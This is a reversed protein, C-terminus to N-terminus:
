ASDNKFYLTGDEDAIPSCIAYQAQAGAPTFLCYAAECTKASGGANYSETTTLLAKTQGPKDALVRLKGPTYNDFFYVYVCGDTEKYATTLLGSTQPYGQTPVSYVIQKKNLDIVAIRHGSYAGFQSSGCVGVYARGHYVTPTGTCMAPNNGNKGDDLSIQDVTRIRGTEDVDAILFFGNKTTLCFRGSDADRMVASRIDGCGDPKSMDLLVGTKPDFTLIEGQGTTCGPEGDDTGVILFEDCVYAGAWYFGGKHTYTWAALKEEKPTDPAEDCVPLCVFNAEATEGQWFGTYIYGDHYAIPCNPQGGIADRYIWLSALTAADFAQICGDSLGVFLMGAAYTPANVAFSSSHDMTGTCVIEGTEKDVKYVTNGAYTYLYGDALIPCGCADSSFGDGIKTAWKLVADEAKVPTKVDLAANNDADYRSAPWFSELERPQRSADAQELAVTLEADEQPAVYGATWTGVYGNKTVTYSYRQGVNLLFVHDRGEVRKGTTENVVFVTADEPVTVFRVAAPSVRRFTLRYSGRAGSPHRLGITVDQVSLAPDLSIVVDKLATYAAGGIVAEYHGCCATEDGESVFTGNLTVSTVDPAVNVTYATVDRDFATPQGKADALSLPEDGAFLELERLHLEREITFVYDQYLVAGDATTKSPRLTLTQGEGCAALANTLFVASADTSVAATVAKETPAGHVEPRSASMADYVASLSYGEAASGQAYLASAADSVTLSYTHTGASFPASLAYEKRTKASGANYFAANQLADVAQPEAVRVTMGDKATFSVASHYWENKTAICTYSEGPILQYRSGSFHVKAGDATFVEASVGGPVTLQVSAPAVTNVRVRYENKLMGATVTVTIVNGTQIHDVKYKEDFPMAEVIPEGQLATVTYDTTEPSFPLTLATGGDTLALSSLTPIREIEVAYSQIMTFDNEATYQAELTFSASGTGPTLLYALMTKTSNWSRPTASMDAGNTGKYLTRLSTKAPDPMVGAAANLYLGTEGATDPVFCRLKHAADNQESRYAQRDADLLRIAGFWNGEPLAVSVDTDGEVAVTGVTRNFAGDTVTFDYTGEVVSCVTGTAETQNGFADTMVIHPKATGSVTFRVSRKEGNMVADYDAVANRLAEALGDMEEPAGCRLGDLANEYATQAPGYHHINDTRERYAGMATLLSVAADCGNDAETICLATVDAAPVNLDFGNGDYYRSYNGPEGEVSVIWGDELGEFRYETALLAEKVSQGPQYVVAVPEILVRNASFAALWFRGGGAAFVPLSGIICAACLLFVVFRNKKMYKM